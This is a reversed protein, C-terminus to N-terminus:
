RVLNRVAALMNLTVVSRLRISVDPVCGVYPCIFLDVRLVRPEGYDGAREPFFGGRDVYLGIGRLGNIPTFRLHVANRGSHQFPTNRLPLRVLRKLPDILHGFVTPQEAQMDSRLQTRNKGADFVDACVTLYS